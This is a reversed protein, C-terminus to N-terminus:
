SSTGEVWGLDRQAEALHERVWGVLAIADDMDAASLGAHIPAFTAFGEGAFLAIEAFIRASRESVKPNVLARQMMASQAPRGQQSIKEPEVGEGLMWALLRSRLVVAEDILDDAPADPARDSFRQNLEEAIALFLGEMSGFNMRISSHSVGAAEAIGRSTISPFPQSRMLEIATDITMRRSDYNHTWRRRKRHDDSVLRQAPETMESEM